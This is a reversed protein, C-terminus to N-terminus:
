TEDDSTISPLILHNVTSELPHLVISSHLYGSYEDNLITATAAIIAWVRCTMRFGKILLHAERWSEENYLLLLHLGM